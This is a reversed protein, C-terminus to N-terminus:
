RRIRRLLRKIQHKREEPIASVLRQWLHGGLHRPLTAAMVLPRRPGPPYLTLWDLEQEVDCFRQKDSQAGPGFDLRTDHRDMAHDLAAVLGQM